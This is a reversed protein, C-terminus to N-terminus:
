LSSNIPYNGLVDVCACRGADATRIGIVMETARSSCVKCDFLYKPVILFVGALTASTVIPCSPAM